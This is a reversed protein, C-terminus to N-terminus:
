TALLRWGLHLGASVVEAPTSHGVHIALLKSFLEPKAAMSRIARERLMHNAALMLILQGLCTPRVTLKKHAREYLRLDGAEMADALALAQRFCLRLGEGTIADVGGSSDGLLAVNGANVHPLRHMFTIAGRERSGLPSGALREQLQPWQQLADSFHADRADAATLVVCMEQSSIPTVYAQCRAGWYVEVFETWPTVLYHRRMAYRFSRARNADLGAWRRVRSGSGDAGVIWKAKISGRSTQVGTQLIGSVPTNWMFQVGCDQARKVLLEHLVTRRIGIGRGKPFAAAVQEHRQAFRIGRFPYGGLDHASIGLDQLALQTEPLLGEGCPKDIPPQSGDAVIAHFGKQRAAIAAALGAPGGGIVFVDTVDVTAGM